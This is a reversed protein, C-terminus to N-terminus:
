RGSVVGPVGAEQGGSVEITVVVGQDGAEAGVVKGRAEQEGWTVPFEAGVLERADGIRLAEFLGPELRFGLRTVEGPM